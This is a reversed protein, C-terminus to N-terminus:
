KNSNTTRQEVTLLNWNPPSAEGTKRLLSDGLMFRRVEFMLIPLEDDKMESRNQDEIEVTPAYGEEVGAEREVRM